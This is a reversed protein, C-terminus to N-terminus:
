AVVAVASQDTSRAYTQVFNTAMLQGNYRKNQSQMAARVLPSISSDSIAVPGLSRITEKRNAYRDIMEFCVRASMLDNSTKIVAVGSLLYPCGSGPRELAIFSLQNRAALNHGILFLEQENGIM